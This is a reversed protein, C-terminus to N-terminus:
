KKIKISRYLKQDVVQAIKQPEAKLHLFDIIKKAEIQPQAIIESHKLLLVECNHNNEIWGSLKNMYQAYSIEINAPYTDGKSKGERMLMKQQSDIIEHLSRLVVIIKYNFRPPIKYLLPIVIKIAKGSAEELWQNNRLLQRAKQHEFFGKPNNEDALRINDTFINVGGAKLMQMVLSTGSRPLGSVVMIEPLKQKAQRPQISFDDISFLEEITETSESASKLIEKHFTARTDNNLQKTYLSIIKNRATGNNPAIKLAVEYAQAAEDYQQQAEFIQGLIYHSSSNYFNIEIASLTCDLAKDFDGEFYYGFGVGTLAQSNEPDFELVKEFHPISETWKGLKGYANALQLFYNQNKVIGTDMKKLVEIAKKPKGELILLNAREIEAQKLDFLAQRAERIPNIINIRKWNEKEQPTIIIPPKHKKLEKIEDNSLKKGLATEELKNLAHNAKEFDGYQAYCSMLRFVFRGKFPFKKTLNEFIPLAKDKRDTSLYVLALNYQLEEVTNEIAEKINPGPNEIYGLDILQKIAEQANIPDQQKLHEPLSGDDGKILEWSPTYKPTTPNKFIDLLPKGDMDDGIPLDFISLITPTIDLLSAGYIIHDAKINPGKACFVGLQRHQYIPGAPEDPIHLPRLHDSHFGHDSVLIINAESGAIHMLRGLMLDMLRYIGDIIENYLEFEIQNTTDLKPPYYQMFTHCIHDVSDWYIATFDWDENQMAFTAANQISMAEAMIKMLSNLQKSYELGKIKAKPIFPVISALDLEYPHMRFHAILEQLSSPHVCNDPVTEDYQNINNTKPFLNSVYIGNIPEAPHSPWWNIIHSKYGEQNLINWIAKVKRSAVSIPQITSNDPSPETFGHIGHKDAYMGTAISTWLMPSLAPTLTSLNGMTGGDIMKELNPMEGRDVLKNIIKWDAADWGLLLVKNKNKKQNETNMIIQCIEKRIRVSFKLFPKLIYTSFLKIKM